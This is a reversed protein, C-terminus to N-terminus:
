WTLNEWPDSHTGLVQGQHSPWHIIRVIITNRICQIVIGEKWYHYTQGLIDLHISTTGQHSTWDLIWSQEGANNERIRHLVICLPCLLILLNIQFRLTIGLWHAFSNYWVCRWWRHIFQFLVTTCTPFACYIQSHSDIQLCQFHGDMTKPGTLCTKPSMLQGLPLPITRTEFFPPVEVLEVM